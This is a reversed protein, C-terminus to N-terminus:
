AIQPESHQDIWADRETQKQSLTRTTLHQLWRARGHLTKWLQPPLISPTSMSRLWSAHDPDPSVDSTTIDVPTPFPPRLRSRLWIKRDSDPMHDFDRMRDSDHYVQMILMYLPYYIIHFNIWHESYSLCNTLKRKRAMWLIIWEITCSRLGRAYPAYGYLRSGYLMLRPM